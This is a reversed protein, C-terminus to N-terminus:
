EPTWPKIPMIKGLFDLRQRLNHLLQEAAWVIGDNLKSLSVHQDPVAQMTCEVLTRHNGWAFLDMRGWYKKMSGRYRKWDLRYHNKGPKSWTYKVAVWANRMPWPFNTVMVAWTNNKGKRRVVKSKTVRPMFRSYKEFDSVIGMVRSPPHNMLIYAKPKWYKESKDIKVVARWQELNKRERNSLRPMATAEQKRWPAKLGGAFFVVIILFAGLILNKKASKHNLYKTNYHSMTERLHKKYITM